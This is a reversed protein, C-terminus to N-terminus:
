KLEGIKVLEAIYEDRKMVGTTEYTKCLEKQSSSLDSFTFKKKGGGRSQPTEVTQAGPKAAPTEGKFKEPFAKKTAAAIKNLMTSYKMGEYKKRTAQVDAYQKLEEDEDYWSNNELWPAFDPHEKTEEEKPIDTPAKELETIQADIDRVVDDDGDEKAERKEAKLKAIQQKVEAVRVKHLTTYHNKLNHMGATLQDIKKNQGKLQKSMTNQIEKSRIIFDEASVYERDGEKHEPNWGIRMAIKETETYQPEEGEKTEVAEETTKEEDSM